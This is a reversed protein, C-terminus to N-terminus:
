KCANESNSANESNGNDSSNGPSCDINTNSSNSSSNTPVYGEPTNPALGTPTPTRTPRSNDNPTKTPEMTPTTTMSPDPSPNPSPDISNEDTPEISTDSQLISSEGAHIVAKESHSNTEVEGELVSAVVSGDPGIQMTFHGNSSNAVGAATRITFSNTKQATLNETQGSIQEISIEWTGQSKNLAVLHVESESGLITQEGGPFSIVAQSGTMSRVSADIPVSQGPKVENWTGTVPDLMEVQGTVEEVYGAYVVSPNLNFLFAFAILMLAAFGIMVPRLLPLWRKAPKASYKDSYARLVKKHANQSPAKWHLTQIASFMRRYLIISENCTQCGSELHESLELSSLADLRGELYDVLQETSYHTM